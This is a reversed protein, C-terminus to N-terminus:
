HLLNQLLESITHSFNAKMSDMCMANRIIKQILVGQKWVRMPFVSPRLPVGVVSWQMETATWFPNQVTPVLRIPANRATSKSFHMVFFDVLCAYCVKLPCLLKVPAHTNQILVRSRNGIETVGKLPTAGFVLLFITSM